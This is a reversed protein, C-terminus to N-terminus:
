AATARRTSVRISGCERTATLRRAPRSLGGLGLVALEQRGDLGAVVLPQLARELHVGRPGALEQDAERLALPVRRRRDARRRLRGAREGGPEDRGGQLPRIVTAGVRAM